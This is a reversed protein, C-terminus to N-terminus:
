SAGLEALGKGLTLANRLVVVSGCLEVLHGAILAAQSATNEKAVHVTTATSDLSILPPSRIEDPLGALLRGKPGAGIETEHVFASIADISIEDSRCLEILPGAFATCVIPAGLQGPAVSTADTDVLVHRSGHGEVLLRAVTLPEWGAVGEAHHEGVTLPRHSGVVIASYLEKLVSAVAPVGLSAPVKSPSVFLTAANRAVDLAGTLEIKM